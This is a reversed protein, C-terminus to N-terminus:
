VLNQEKLYQVTDTCGGIHQDNVIVQPFTSGDGFESYFEEKTFDTNLKYIVHQLNALQLVQQVKTCYPCGDKSYVTFKMNNALNQFNNLSHLQPWTDRIIEALKYPTESSIM